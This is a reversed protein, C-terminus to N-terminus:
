GMVGPGSPKVDHQEKSAGSHDYSEIGAVLMAHASDIQQHLGPWLPPGNLRDRSRVVDTKFYSVYAARFGERNENFFDVLQQKRAEPDSSPVLRSPLPAERRSSLEVSGSDIWQQVIPNPQTYEFVENSRSRPDSMGLKVLETYPKLSAGRSPFAFAIALSLSELVVASLDAAETVDSLLQEPFNLWQPDETDAGALIRFPTEIPDGVDIFGLVRGTFWGRLAAILHPQPLPVFEGLPRARRNSWYKVRQVPHDKAATWSTVIPEMLTKVIVPSVPTALWSVIDIYPLDSKDSMVGQIAEDKANGSLYAFIRNALLSRVEKDIVSNNFPVKTISFQVRDTDDRLSQPHVVGATEDHLEVLPQATTIAERLKALVRQQRAENGEAYSRLDMRIFDHFPTGSRKLWLASRELIDKIDTRIVVAAPTEADRGGVLDYGAFWERQIDIVRAREFQDRFPDDQSMGNLKERVFRGSALETIVEDEAMAAPLERYTQRLLQGFIRGFDENEIVTSESEPPLVHVPPTASDSNIPFTGVDDAHLELQSVARGIQAILPRLLGERYREILIRTQRLVEASAAYAAASVAIRIAGIVEEADVKRNTDFEGGLHEYFAEEVQQKSGTYSSEDELHRIAPVAVDRLELSFNNLIGKAIELGFAGIAEETRLVTQNSALRVWESVRDPLGESTATLLATRVGNNILPLFENAWASIPSAGFEQEYDRASQILDNIKELKVIGLAEPELAKELLDGYVSGLREEAEPDSRDSTILERRLAENDSLADYVDVVDRYAGFRRKAIYDSVQAPNSLGSARKESQAWESDLNARGLHEVVRRALRETSYREFYPTSGLSVRSFGLSDFIPFSTEAETTVRGFNWPVEISEPERRETLNGWVKSVLGDQLVPDVIWSLLAGGVKEFLRGDGDMRHGDINTQGVLYNARVGSLDITNPLGAARGLARTDRVPISVKPASSSARPLWWAGNLMESVAALANPRLGSGYTEPFADPTFWIGVSLDMMSENFSRYIDVVDFLLGAGTGGALSSIFVTIHPQDSLDKSESTTRGKPGQTYLARMETTARDSEVANLAAELADHVSAAYARSISRGIGRMQGGATTVPVKTNPSVRWGVLSEGGLDGADVQAMLSRMTMGDSVLGRYEEDSLLPENKALGDQTAPTDINLFQVGYPLDTYQQEMLDADFWGRTTCWETFDRKLYRLAKGGSGGLGVFLMRRYGM